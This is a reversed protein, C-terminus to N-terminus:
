YTTQTLSVKTSLCRKTRVIFMKNFVSDPITVTQGTLANVMEPVNDSHGVVLFSKGKVKNLNVIFQVSTDNKYIVTQLHLATALPQATQQTRLYTSAFISDIGKNLLSDRLVNARQLGINSLVANPSQDIKEAHRVLYITTTCSTMGFVIASFLLIKLKKM